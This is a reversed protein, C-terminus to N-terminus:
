PLLSRYDAPNCSQLLEQRAQELLAPETALHAGALALVKVANLMGTEGIASGACATMMWHHNATGVPRCATWCFGCPLLHQIDGLDLSGASDTHDVPRIGEYLYKGGPIGFHRAASACGPNQAALADAFDHAEQPFPILDTEEMCQRLLLTLTPNPNTPYCGGLEKVEVETETMMAAGKAVKILREKASLLHEITKGRVMYWSVAKNPVLNPATGGEKTVYHLAIDQPLHERLYQAGMNTLELADLASRGMEPNGAAHASIGTYHFELSVVGANKGMTVFNVGAPHFALAADLETFAGHALMAPKGTLVEEAPCGYFVVTGSLGEQAFLEKMMIAAGAHGAAMLNHGCGHGYAERPIPAQHPVPEQSLGPLADYEGLLGIVPHGQGWQARICTDLGFAGREVTFGAEELLAATAESAFHEAYPGEPHAFVQRSLLLIQERWQPLLTDIVAAYHQSSM